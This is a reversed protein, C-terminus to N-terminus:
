MGARRAARISGMSARRESQAKCCPRAEVYEAEHSTETCAEASGEQCSEVEGERRLHEAHTRTRMMVTDLGICRRARSVFVMVCM